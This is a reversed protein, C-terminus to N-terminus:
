GGEIKMDKNVLSQMQRLLEPDDGEAVKTLINPDAFTKDKELFEWVEKEYM